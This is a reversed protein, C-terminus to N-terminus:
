SYPKIFTPKSMVTLIFLYGNCCGEFTSICTPSIRSSLSLCVWIKSLKIKWMFWSEVVIWWVAGSVSTSAGSILDLVLSFFGVFCTSSPLHTNSCVSISVSSHSINISGHQLVPTNAWTFLSITDFSFVNKIFIKRM